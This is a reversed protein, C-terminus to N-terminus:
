QEYREVQGGDIRYGVAIQAQGDVFSLAQSSPKASLSGTVWVPTYLEDTTFNSALSVHVIQNPPPPPAHICAGVYPVLLFERVGTGDFELPLLYGPIRIVRGDLAENLAQDRAEIAARYEEFRALYAEVDVGKRELKTIFMEAEGIAPNDPAVQGLSQMHRLNAVFGMRYREDTPLESLPDVPDEGPPILDDWTVQRAIEAWAPSASLLPISLLAYLCLTLCLPRFLATTM